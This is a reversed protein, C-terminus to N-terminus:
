DLNNENTNFGNRLTYLIKDLLINKFDSFM